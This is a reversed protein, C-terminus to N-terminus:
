GESGPMFCRIYFKFDDGEMWIKYEWIMAHGEKNPGEVVAYDPIDVRKGALIAWYSSHADTGYVDKINKDQSGWSLDDLHEADSGDCCRSGGKAHLGSFWENLEPHSAYDHGAARGWPALLLFILIAWLIARM